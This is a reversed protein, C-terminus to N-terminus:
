AIHVILEIQDPTIKGDEFTEKYQSNFHLVVKRDTKVDQLIKSNEIIYKQESKSLKIILNKLIDLTLYSYIMM